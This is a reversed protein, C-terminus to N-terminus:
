SITAILADLTTRFGALTATDFTRYVPLGQANLTFALKFGNADQPFNTVVWSITADLQAIMSTFETAINLAPNNEQEQAYVALGPTSALTTMETRSRALMQLYALIRDAAVPGALSSARLAVSQSRVDAARGKLLRFADALNQNTAPFSM